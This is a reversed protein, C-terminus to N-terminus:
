MHKASNGRGKKSTGYQQNMLESFESDAAGHRGASPCEDLQHIKGMPCMVTKKSKPVSSLGEAFCKPHPPIKLLFILLLLCMFTSFMVM